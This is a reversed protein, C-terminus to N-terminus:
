DLLEGLEQRLRALVRLKAKRVAASTMGLAAGVDGTSKGDIQVQWFAQWTREEFDGRVTELTRHLVQNVIQQESDDDDVSVPDPQAHIRVNADTGGAALPENQRRRFHDRIKNQTITRLWGRFTDGPRDRRFDHIHLALARFTEQFVDATDDPGLQARRCWHYVLPAYLDVLRTWAAQDDAQVRLLLSPSTHFASSAGSQSSATM